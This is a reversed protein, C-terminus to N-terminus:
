KKIGKYDYIVRTDKSKEIRRNPTFLRDGEKIYKYLNNNKNDLIESIKILGGNSVVFVSNQYKRVILGTQFPHYTNNINVIRSKKLYVLKNNLFTKAGEYPEDFACIFSDIFKINWEWNLYANYKTSLRPYYINKSYKQKTLKFNGNRNIKKLFSKLIQFGYSFSENFYQSPIRAKSSFTFKKKMLIDGGDILSTLLHITFASSKENQLIQWSYGGGGKHLPLDSSHLNLLRNSFLNITKKSFDM